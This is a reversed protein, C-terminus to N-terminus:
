AQHVTVAAARGYQSGPRSKRCVLKRCERSRGKELLKVGIAVTILSLSGSRRRVQCYTIGGDRGVFLNSPGRPTSNISKVSQPLARSSHSNADSGSSSRDYLDVHFTRISISAKRFYLISAAAVLISLSMGSYEQTKHPLLVFLCRSTPFPDATHPSEAELLSHESRQCSRGSVPMELTLMDPIHITFSSIKKQIPVRRNLLPM